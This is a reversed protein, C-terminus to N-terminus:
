AFLIVLALIFVASVGLMVALILFMASSNNDKRRRVLKRASGTAGFYALKRNIYVRVSVYTILLLVALVGLSPLIINMPLVWFTVTSSVTQKNGDEGYSPSILAEYRGFGTKDSSWTLEFERTSKPFVGAQEQNFDLTAVKSGFMNSIELPGRPRLLTNGGNELKVNFKVEPKGYVYNDTSFQRISAKEEVEGAVRISIINGVQYSIAAGSERLKPADVSVFVGGFHNGPSANDPVHITVEFSREQDKPVNIRETNLQVWETLEYGTKSLGEEAFIPVGGSKVGTIDKKFLYYDQDEGSYNTIGITYQKTDGPKLADEITAPKLGIGSGGSQAYTFLPSLFLSAVVLLTFYRHM